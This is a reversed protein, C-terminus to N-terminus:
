APSRLSFVDAGGWQEAMAAAIGHFTRSRIKWRDPGPPTRHIWSWAVHEDTGIPPPALTHTSVLRPLGILEFGTAKFAPEGFHWPQVIQRVRPSGIMAKARGHMIPNEIAKRPIPADRLACYFAVAEALEREMDAVTKGNPPDTLWCVGSNALRTCPPHAVMLDWGDGLIDLVSGTHHPGPAETPLLDCSVAYHGRARFADRVRGSYECAVLVRM